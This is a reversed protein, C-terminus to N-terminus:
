TFYPKCLVSGPLAIHICTDVKCIPFDDKRIEHAKTRWEHRKKYLEKIEELNGHYLINKIAQYHEDVFKSRKETKDHNLCYQRMHIYIEDRTKTEEQASSATVLPQINFFKFDQDPDIVPPAELADPPPPDKPLDCGQKEIIHFQAINM